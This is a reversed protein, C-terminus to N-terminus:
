MGSYDDDYDDYSEEDESYDYDDEEEEYAFATDIEIEEDPVSITFYGADAKLEATGPNEFVAGLDRLEAIDYKSALELPVVGINGADVGFTYKGDASQYEGDGYATAAVAFKFGNAEYIGDDYDAEGWVDYYIDDPLAYCIDGVYFGEKSEVHGQAGETLERSENVEIQSVNPDLEM